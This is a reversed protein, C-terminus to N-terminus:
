SLLLLQWLTWISADTQNSIFHKLTVKLTIAIAAKM